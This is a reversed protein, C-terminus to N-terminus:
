LVRRGGALEPPLPSAAVIHRRNLLAFPYRSIVRRDALSRTRVDTMPLFRPDTSEIFASLMADRPVYIEATITHGPTVIILGDRRKPVAFHESAASSREVSPQAILTVEPPAIWVDPMSIRTPDGNRRLVTADRVRFLGEHHNVFDSLRHFQGIGLEGSLRLHPGVLEVHCVTASDPWAELPAAVVGGLIEELHLSADDGIQNTPDSM